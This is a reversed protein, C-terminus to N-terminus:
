KKALSAAPVYLVQGEYVDQNLDLNNVRLLNHVSVDYREALSDVTDGKQVICVKLKVQATGEDKRAFFETLTMTKNKSFLKKKQKPAEESSSSSSEEYENEVVAEAEVEVEVKEEIEAEVEVDLHQSSESRAEQYPWSSQSFSPNYEQFQWSPQEPEEEQEEPQYNFTPFKPFTLEPEEEQQKRAETEFLLSSTENTPVAPEEVEAEEEEQVENSRNLVEFEQVEEQQQQQETGYLGSITLEATLKLCSREPISYDFSEVHVDIDYISQIRNNPITIDVPFRHSFECNGEEREAVTEVFKQSTYGEDENENSVECSKYEGTLELSGRITVYQDNEQITIDPDLSISLLEEVEQGKRFWLSEELSFRLSSQNEQSM